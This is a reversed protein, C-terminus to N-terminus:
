SPNPMKLTKHKKWEDKKDDYIFFESDNFHYVVNKYAYFNFPISIKFQPSSICIWKRQERDYKESKGKTPSFIYMFGDTNLIDLGYGSFMRQPIPLNRTKSFLCCEYSFLDTKHSLYNVDKIKIKDNCNSFLNLPHFRDSPIKITDGKTNIIQPSHFEKFYLNKRFYLFSSSSPLICWYEFRKGNFWYLHNQLCIMIGDENYNNILQLLVLPLM